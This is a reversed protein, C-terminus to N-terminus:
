VNNDSVKKCVNEHKCHIEITREIIGGMCDKAEIIEWDLDCESCANCPKAFHLEEVFPFQIPKEFVTKGHQMLLSHNEKRLQEAQNYYINRYMVVDNYKEKLESYQKKIEDYKERLVFWKM